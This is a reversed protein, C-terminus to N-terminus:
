GKTILKLLEPSATHLDIIMLNGEFSANDILKIIANQLTHLEEETEKLARLLEYENM